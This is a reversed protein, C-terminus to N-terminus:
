SRYTEDRASYSDDSLANLGPCSLHAVGPSKVIRFGVNRQCDCRHRWRPVFPFWIDSCVAVLLAARLESLAAQLWIYTFLAAAACRAAQERLCGVLEVRAMEQQVETNVRTDTAAPGVRPGTMEELRGPCREGDHQEGGEQM